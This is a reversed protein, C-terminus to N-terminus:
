FHYVIQKNGKRNKYKSHGKVSNITIEDKCLHKCVKALSCNIPDVMSNDNMRSENDDVVPNGIM